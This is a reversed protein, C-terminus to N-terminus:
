KLSKIKPKNPVQNTFLASIRHKAIISLQHKPINPLQGIILISVRHLSNVYNMKIAILLQRKIFDSM